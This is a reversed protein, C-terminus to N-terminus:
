QRLVCPYLYDEPVWFKVSAAVRLSPHSFRVERWGDRLTLPVLPIASALTGITRITASLEVALPANWACVYSNAASQSHAAPPRTPDNETYPQEPQELDGAWALGLEDSWNDSETEPRLASAPVWGVVLTSNLWYAIRRFAGRSELVSVRDTRSDDGRPSTVLFAVPANGPTTSLPVRAGGTWETNIPEKSSLTPPLEGEQRVTLSLTVDACSHEVSALEKSPHLREDIPPRIALRGKEGYTWHVAALPQAWLYGEFLTPRIPHLELAGPAIYASLQMGLVDFTMYAGQSASGVPITVVVNRAETVEGFAQGDPTLGVPGSWHDLRFQCAFTKPEVLQTIPSAATSAHKGFRSPEFDDSPLPDMIAAAAHRSPSRRMAPSKAERSACALSLVAFLSAWTRVSEHM